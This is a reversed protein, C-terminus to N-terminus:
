KLIELGYSSDGLYPMDSFFLESYNFEFNDIFIRGCCCRVIGCDVVWLVPFMKVVVKVEFWFRFLCIYLRGCWLVIMIRYKEVLRCCILQQSFMMMSFLLVSSRRHQQTAIPAAM